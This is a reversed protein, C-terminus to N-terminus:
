FSLHSDDTGLTPVCIEVKNLENTFYDRDRVYVTFVRDLLHYINVTGDSM